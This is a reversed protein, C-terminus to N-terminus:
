RGNCRKKVKKMNEFSHSKAQREGEAKLEKRLAIDKVTKERWEKPTM